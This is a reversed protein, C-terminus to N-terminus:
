AVLMREHCPTTTQDGFPLHQQMSNQEGRENLSLYTCNADEVIQAIPYLTDDLDFTLLGLSKVSPNSSDTADGSAVTEANLQTAVTQRHHKNCTTRPLFANTSSVLVALLKLTTVSVKM